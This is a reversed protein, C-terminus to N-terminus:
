FHFGGKRPSSMSRKLPPNPSPSVPSPAVPVSSLVSFSERRPRTGLLNATSGQRSGAASKMGAAVFQASNVRPFTPMNLSGSSEVRAVTEGSKNTVNDTSSNIVNVSVTAARTRTIKCKGAVGTVIIDAGLSGRRTRGGSKPAGDGRQSMSPKRSMTRLTAMTEAQQTEMHEEEDWYFWKLYSYIDVGLSAMWLATCAADFAILAIARDCGLLRTSDNPNCTNGVLCGTTITCALWLVFAVGDAVAELVLCTHTSLPENLIPAVHLAVLVLSAFPGLITAMVWTMQLMPALSRVGVLNANQTVLLYWIGLCLFAQLFRLPYRPKMDAVIHHDRRKSEVFDKHVYYRPMKARARRPIAPKSPHNVVVSLSSAVPLRRRRPLLHSAELNLFAPDANAGAPDKAIGLHQTQYQTALTKWRQMENHFSQIKANAENRLQDNMARQQALEANLGATIATTETNQQAVRGATDVQAQKVIANARDIASQGQRKHEAVMKDLAQQYGVRNREVAAQMDGRLRQIEEQHAAKETTILRSVLAEFARELEVKVGEPLFSVERVDMPGDNIDALFNVQDLIMKVNDKCSEVEIAMRRAAEMGARIEEEKEEILGVRTGMAEMAAQATREVRMEVETERGVEEKAKNFDALLKAMADKILKGGDVGQDLRRATEEIREFAKSQVREQIALLERRHAEAAARERDARTSREQALQHELQRVREAQSDALSQLRDAQSTIPALLATIEALQRTALEDRVALVRTDVARQFAESWKDSTTELEKKFRRVLEHIAEEDAKIAAVSQASKPFRETVKLKEKERAIKLYFDVCAALGRLGEEEM